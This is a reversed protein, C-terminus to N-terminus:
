LRTVLDTVLKIAGELGPFLSTGSINMSSIKAICEPKLEAPIITRTLSSDEGAERILRNM